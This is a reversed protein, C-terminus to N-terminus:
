DLNRPARILEKRNPRGQRIPMTKGRSSRGAKKGKGKCGNEGKEGEFPKPGKTTGKCEEQERGRHSRMPTQVSKGRGKQHPVVTVGAASKGSPPLLASEGDEAGGRGAQTPGRLTRNLEPGVGALKARLVSKRPYVNINKQVNAECRNAKNVGDRTGVKDSFVCKGKRPPFYM